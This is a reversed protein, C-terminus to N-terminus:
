SCRGKRSHVSLLWGSVFTYHLHEMFDRRTSRPLKVHPVSNEGMYMTTLFGWFGGLLIGLNCRAIIHCGFANALAEEFQHASVSLRSYTQECLQRAEDIRGQARMARASEMFIEDLLYHEKDFAPDDKITNSLTRCTAEAESLMGAEKQDEALRSALSVVGACVSNSPHAM